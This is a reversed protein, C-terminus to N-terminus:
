APMRKDWARIKPFQGWSFRYLAQKSFDSALKLILLYEFLQKKQDQEDPYITGTKKAKKITKISYCDGDRSLAGVNKAGHPAAILNSLGPTSNFHELTFGDGIEGVSYTIGRAVLEKEVEIRLSILENVKLKILDM